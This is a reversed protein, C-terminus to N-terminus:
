RVERSYEQYSKGDPAYERTREMPGPRSRPRVARAAQSASGVASGVDQLYPRVNKGYESQDVKMQNFLGPLSYEVERRHAETLGAQSVERMANARFVQYQDRMGYTRRVTAEEFGSIIAANVQAVFKEPLIKELEFKVTATLQKRYETEARINEPKNRETETEASLKQAQALALISQSAASSMAPTFEPEVRAPPGSGMAGSPTSAGGQSYALMPNLGAKKMDGIARQYSTNSMNKQFQMQKAAQEASWERNERSLQVNMDNANSQSDSQFLGSIISGGFAGIIADDIGFM